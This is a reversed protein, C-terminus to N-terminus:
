KEGEKLFEEYDKVSIHFERILDTKNDACFTIIDGNPLECHGYYKTCDNISVNGIYKGFKIRFKNPM